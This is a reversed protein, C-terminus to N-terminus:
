IPGTSIKDIKNGRVLVNSPSSLTGNKGDFIRVNQFLVTSQAAPPAPETEAMNPLYSVALLAALAAIKVRSWMTGEGAKVENLTKLYRWGSLGCLERTQFTRKPDSASM